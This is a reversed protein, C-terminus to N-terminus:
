NLSWTQIPSPYSKEVTSLAYLNMATAAIPGSAYQGILEEAADSGAQKYQRQAESLVLGDMAVSIADGFEWDAPVGERSQALADLANELSQGPHGDITHNAVGMIRNAAAHNLGTLM